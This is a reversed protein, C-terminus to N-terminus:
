EVPHGHGYEVGEDEVVMGPSQIIFHRYKDKTAKRLSFLYGASVVLTFYPLARPISVQIGIGWIWGRTPWVRTSFHYILVICAIGIALLYQIRLHTIMAGAKRHRGFYFHIAHLDAPTRLFQREINAIIVTNRNFWYSADYLHAVLWSALLVLISSAIDLTIIGKEVLALIAFAGLLVGVSQWVVLIHTNIDNFMQDYMRLLFQNRTESETMEFTVNIQVQDRNKRFLM